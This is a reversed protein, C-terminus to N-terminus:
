GFGRVLDAALSYIDRPGGTALKNIRNGITVVLVAPQVRMSCNLLGICGKPESTTTEISGTRALPSLHLGCIRQAATICVRNYDRTAKLPLPLGGDPQVFPLHCYNRM